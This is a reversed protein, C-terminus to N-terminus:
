LNDFSMEFSIAAHGLQQAKSDQVGGDMVEIPGRKDKRQRQDSLSYVGKAEPAAVGAGGGTGGGGLAGSTM